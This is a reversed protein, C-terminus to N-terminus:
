VNTAHMKRYKVPTMGEQKNFYTIFQPVSHFDCAEAILSTTYNTSELMKKAYNLRQKIIYQQPSIGNIEKFRHRFRHYSLGSMKSVEEINIGNHSHANMFNLIYDFNDAEINKKPESSKLTRCLTIMVTNLLLNLMKKRNYKNGEFELCLSDILSGVGSKSCGKFIVPMNHFDYDFNSFGIFICDCKGGCEFRYKVNPPLLIADNSEIDQEGGDFFIRGTKCGSKIYILEYFLSLRFINQNVPGPSYKAFYLLDCCNM